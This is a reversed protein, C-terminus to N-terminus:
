PTDFLFHELIMHRMADLVRDCAAVLGILAALDGLQHGDDLPRVPLDFVMVALHTSLADCAAEARFTACLCCERKQSRMEKFRYFRLPGEFKHEM